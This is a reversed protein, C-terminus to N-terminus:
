FQSSNRNWRAYQAAGRGIWLLAEPDTIGDRARNYYRVLWRYAENADDLRGAVRHLEAALYRAACQDPDAALAANVREQAAAHGGREFELRALDAHLAARRAPAEGPGGRRTAAARLVDIAKADEGTAALCRAEGLAAAVPERTALAAYARRADAYRGTLRLSDAGALGAEVGAAPGAGAAALGLTILLAPFAPSGRGPFRSTKRSRLRIESAAVM